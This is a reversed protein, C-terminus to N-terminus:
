LGEQNHKGRIGGTRDGAAKRIHGAVEVYEDLMVNGTRIHVLDDLQGKIAINPIPLKNSPLTIKLVTIAM